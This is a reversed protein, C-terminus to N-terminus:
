KKRTYLLLHKTQVEVLWFPFYLRGFNQFYNKGLFPYFNNLLFFIYNVLYYTFTISLMLIINGLSATAM